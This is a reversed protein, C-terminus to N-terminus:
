RRSRRPVRDGDIQRRMREYDDRSVEGKRYRDEIESLTRRRNVSKPPYKTMVVILAVLLILLLIAWILQM